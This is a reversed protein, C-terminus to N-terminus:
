CTTMGDPIRRRDICGDCFAGVLDRSGDSIGWGGRLIDGITFPEKPSVERTIRRMMM